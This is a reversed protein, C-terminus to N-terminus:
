KLNLLKLFRPDSIFLVNAMSTHLFHAKTISTFIVEAGQSCLVIPRMSTYWWFNYFYFAAEM